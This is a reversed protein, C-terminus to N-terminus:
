EQEQHRIAELLARAESSIRDELVAKSHPADREREWESYGFNLTDAFERASRRIVGKDLVTWQMTLDSTVVEIEDGRARGEKTLREIVADATKGYPSFLIKVGAIDHEGREPNINHTGDFVLTVNFGPQAYSAVDSALAERAVDWQEEAVLEKYPQAAFLVNYGDIILQKM